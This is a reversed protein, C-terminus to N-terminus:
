FAPFRPAKRQFYVPNGSENRSSPTLAVGEVFCV